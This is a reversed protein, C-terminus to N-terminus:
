RRAAPGRPRRCGRAHLDVRLPQGREHEEADAVVLAERQDEVALVAGVHPQGLVVDVLAEDGLGARHQRRPRVEAVRPGLRRHQLRQGERALVARARREVDVVARVEPADGAVALALAAEHLAGLHRLLQLRRQVEEVQDDAGLLLEVDGAARGVGDGREARHARDRVRRQDALAARLARDGELARDGALRSSPWVPGPKGISTKLTRPAPSPKKEPRSLPQSVSWSQGVLRFYALAQPAKATERWPQM